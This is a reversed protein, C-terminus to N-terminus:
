CFFCRNIGSKKKSYMKRYDKRIDTFHLKRIPQRLLTFHQIKFFLKKGTKYYRTFFQFIFLCFLRYVANGYGATLLSARGTRCNTHSFSLWDSEIKVCIERFLILAPQGLIFFSFEAGWFNLWPVKGICLFIFRYTNVINSCYGNSLM